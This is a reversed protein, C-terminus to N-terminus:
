QAPMWRVRGIGPIEIEGYPSEAKRWQADPRFFEWTGGARKRLGPLPNQRRAYSERLWAGHEAALHRDLDACAFDFDARDDAPYRIEGTETLYPANDGCGKYEAAYQGTRFVAFHAAAQDGWKYPIEAVALGGGFDRATELAAADTLIGADGHEAVARLYQGYDALRGYDAANFGCQRYAWGSVPSPTALEADSFGLLTASPIPTHGDERWLVVAGRFDDPVEISASDDADGVWTCDHVRRMLEFVQGDWRM